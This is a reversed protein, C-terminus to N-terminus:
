SCVSLHTTPASTGYQLHNHGAHAVDACLCVQWDAEQAQGRSQGISSIKSVPEADLLRYVQEEQQKQDGYCFQKAPHAATDLSYLLACTKAALQCGDLMDSCHITSAMLCAVHDASRCSAWMGVACHEHVVSTICAACQYHHHVSGSCAQVSNVVAYSICPCICPSNLKLGLTRGTGKSHWMWPYGPM